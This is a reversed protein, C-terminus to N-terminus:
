RATRSRLADPPNRDCAAAISHRRFVERASRVFERVNRSTDGQRWVVCIPLRADPENVPIVAVGSTRHSQTYESAIGLYYGQRSAVLM